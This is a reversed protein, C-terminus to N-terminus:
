LPQESKATASSSLTVTFSGLVALQIEAPRSATVQVRVGPDSATVPYTQGPICPQGGPATSHASAAAVVVAPSGQVLSVCVDATTLDGTSREVVLDRVNEAWTGSVFGQNPAIAAAYRAGERTAHTVQQKQNLAFGATITGTLLMAIVPLILAFEILAAGRDDRRGARIQVEHRSTM